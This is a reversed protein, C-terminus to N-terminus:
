KLMGLPRLPQRGFASVRHAWSGLEVVGDKIFCEVEGEAEKGPFCDKPYESPVAAHEAAASCCKRSCNGPTFLEVAGDLGVICMYESLVAGPWHGGGEAQGELRDALLVEAAQHEGGAM